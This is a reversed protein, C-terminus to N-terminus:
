TKTIGIEQVNGVSSARIHRGHIDGLGVLRKGSVWKGLVRELASLIYDICTSRQEIRELRAEGRLTRHDSDAPRTSSTLKSEDSLYTGETLLRRRIVM